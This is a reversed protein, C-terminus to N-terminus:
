QRRRRSNHHLLATVPVPLPTESYDAKFWLVLECTESKSFSCCLAWQMAIHLIYFYATKSYSIREKMKELSLSSNLHTLESSWLQLQIPQNTPQREIFEKHRVHNRRQLTNFTYQVSATCIYELGLRGWTQFNLLTKKRFILNWSTPKYLWFVKAADEVSEQLTHPITEIIVELFYGLLWYPIKFFDLLSAM